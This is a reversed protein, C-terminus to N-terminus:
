SPRSLWDGLSPSAGQQRRRNDGGKWKDLGDLNGDEFTWLDQNPDKDQYAWNYGSVFEGPINMSRREDGRVFKIPTSKFEADVEAVVDAVNNTLPTQFLFADHNQLLIQIPLFPRNTGLPDNKLSRAWCKWMILNLLKAVTGQPVCAIAERLTSDETPRSFFWRRTGLPTDLYQHDLLQQKVWAHWLRIAPFARFYRRQFDEVIQVPIGVAAAIGYATGNYNSGHGIRKAVDRYSMGLSPYAQDAIARDHVKEGTWGMEPWAMRCVATHLDGSLIANWYTADGTVQWVLGAVVYSEAQELDTSVMMYGDDACFMRRMSATINQLNTGRGFANASSSWRWNETGAVNYSCSMRSGPELPSKLVQLNKDMERITLILSVFPRAIQVPYVSPDRPMVGPGKTRQEGWKRLAKDNATPTRERGQPTKRVEYEVPRQLAGNFFALCQKTSGANLGRPRTRPVETVVTRYRPTLPNGKKGVPVYLEKSRTTETYHEPGWVENALRDLLAQAADRKSQYRETEDQRVQQNIAIGRRMMALAPGQMARSFRYATTAHPSAAVREALAHHVRLTVASDLANYAEHIVQAGLRKSPDEENLIAYLDRSQIKLAM